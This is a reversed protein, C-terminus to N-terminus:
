KPELHRLSQWRWCGLKFTAMSMEMGSLLFHSIACPHMHPHSTNALEPFLAGWKWECEVPWHENMGGCRLAIYVTFNPWPIHGMSLSTLNPHIGWVSDFEFDRNSKFGKCFRAWPQMELAGEMSRRSIKIWDWQSEEQDMFKLLRNWGLTKAVARQEIQFRRAWTKVLRVRECWQTRLKCAIEESLGGTAVMEVGEMYTRSWKGDSDFGDRWM